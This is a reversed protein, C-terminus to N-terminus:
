LVTIVSVAGMTVCAYGHLEQIREAMCQLDVLINDYVDYADSVFGAM